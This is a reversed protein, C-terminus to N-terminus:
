PASRCTRCGRGKGDPRRYTNEEDYPHGAPCHTARAHRASMSNSRLTNEGATVEALHAPNVCAKLDCAFHDLVLGPTPPGVLTTWAFRHANMMRDGNWFLGYPGSGFNGTWVWCRGLDPRNAAIPGEKNVKPWFRELPPKRKGSM